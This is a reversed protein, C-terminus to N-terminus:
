LAVRKAEMAWLLRMPTANPLQIATPAGSDFGNCPAITKVNQIAADQHTQSYARRFNQGFSQSCSHSAM